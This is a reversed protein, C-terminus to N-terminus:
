NKLIAMLMKADVWEDMPKTPSYVVEIVEWRSIDIGSQICKLLHAKVNKETTWVKGKSSWNIFSQNNNYGKTIVGHSFYSLNTKSRIKYM